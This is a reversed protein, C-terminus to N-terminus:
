QFMQDAITALSTSTNALRSTRLLNIAQEIESRVQYPRIKSSTLREKWIHGLTVATIITSPLQMDADLNSFELRLLTDASLGPMHIQLCSLLQVGVQDNHPCEILEHKLTGTAQKCIKCLASPSSGLRHLREQTSLLNHLMKWLFSAMDPPIGQQRCLSWSLTWATNPSALEARCSRFVSTNTEQDEEMTIFEETLLITWDRETMTTIDLAHRSKLDRILKFFDKSFYPPLQNPAGPVDDENLIHKRYLQNHLLNQRFSANAATQLFTSIFGALAKYKPSHLGLGGYQLPRHLIMEAPKEFMDQFLWSRCSSMIANTDCVRLDVCRSRFWVKSLAYCNLSWGRQTLPLFKGAKWPRITNKIRLQLADGNVKRTQTWTAMLTVGVMDLHDSLTMYDCPIDEQKLTKRWKGLPLFKCKKNQPDRHLKCGSAQEFLALSRDVIQFEEM